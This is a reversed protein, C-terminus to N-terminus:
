LQVKGFITGPRVDLVGIDGTARVDAISGCHGLIHLGTDMDVAIGLCGEAEDVAEDDDPTDDIDSDDM